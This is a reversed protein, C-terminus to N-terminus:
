APPNVWPHLHTGILCRGADHFERLAAIATAATAVPYDIVYTPVLGFGAFIDQAYHQATIASVAVSSRDFPAGWDFEEETDVVVQILPPGDPLACPKNGPSLM